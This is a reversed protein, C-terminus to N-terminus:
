VECENSNFNMFGGEFDQGIGYDVTAKISEEITAGSLRARAAIEGVKLGAAFLELVPQAGLHYAQYSMYGFPIIEKPFYNLSSQKLNEVDINGCIHGVKLDPFRSELDNFSINSKSGVLEKPNSHDIFVVADLYDLELLKEINEYNCYVDEQLNDSVWIFSCKLKKLGKIIPDCTPGSGIIALKNNYIELDLEFLLKFLIFINYGFMKIEPFNENTGIVPIKNKQCCDLDLDADRYEWVEWMLAVVCTKKLKNIISKNIPRLLGSNSVIDVSALLNEPCSNECIVINELEKKSTLLKLEKKVTQFDGYHSDKGVCVVKAGAMLSLIVNYLYPGSALETLLTLGHLDLDLNNIINQIKNYRNM